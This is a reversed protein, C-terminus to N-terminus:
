DKVCRISAGYTKLVNFRNFGPYGSQLERDWASESDFETTTWWIGKDGMKDFIKQYCDRLGGPLGTFETINRKEPFDTNGVAGEGNSLNWGTASALAIAYGNSGISGDYSFGNQSLYSEMQSVEENSPVHWGAPCLKGSSATYWNYLAGYVGQANSPDNDYWCYGPTSLSVWTDNDTVIPITTGDNFKTVKLNSATWTITGIIVTNYSNGDIDTVPEPCVFTKDDGYVTGMANVAKMRMHYTIGPSFGSASAKVVTNYIGTVPDPSAPVSNGYDTTGYEMTVNIDLANPSIIALGTMESSNIKALCSSVISPLEGPTTFQKDDGYSTGNINVARVRYHYTTAPSLGNLAAFVTIADSGSLPNQAADLNSGYGTNTGYEFSASTSNHNPNVIGNLTASNVTIDTAPNTLTGAKNSVTIFSLTDGYGTGVSNTAYARIYYKTVPTLGSLTSTFTGAGTGDITKDDSIKPTGITSWCVGRATVPESGESTVTGGSTANLGDIDTTASTTVTPVESKRCSYSLILLFIGISALIKLLKSM